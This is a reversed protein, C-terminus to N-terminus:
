KMLVVRRTQSFSGSSLRCLYIGAPAQHGRTDTGDWKAMHNGADLTEAVLTRVLKGKVNYISLTTESTGPLDFSFTTEPNFPNPYNPYLAFGDPSLADHEVASGGEPVLSINDIGVAMAYYTADTWIGTKIGFYITTDVGGEGPATYLSDHGAGCGDNQFTGDVGAGCGDWTNMALKDATDGGAPPIYDTGDVPEEESLYVNCWFQNLDVGWFDPTYDKFAGRLIYTTGAKLTLKQWFLINIYSNTEAYVFLFPGDGFAPGELDSYSMEYAIPFSGGMDYVTWGETNDFNGNVLMEQGSLPSIVFLLAALLGIAKKM